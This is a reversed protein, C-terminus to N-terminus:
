QVKEDYKTDQDDKSNPVNKYYQDVRRLFDHQFGVFEKDSSEFKQFIGDKSCMLIVGSQIKTGYVYNHAMAYAGLQSFYDSIWERRKLKNTQKFDVISERGNYIGVLDTAGAYLEPYYLTVESGWIESLDCLGESIIKKAMPEAERGVSTLDKHGTGRVYGELYTHMATGRMAALDRVRDAQQAGLRAKWYELSKRKKESQTASLITTVSPLM